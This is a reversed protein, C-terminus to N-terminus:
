YHVNNNYKSKSHERKRFYEAYAPNYPNADAKIKVHRVIPTSHVIAKAIRMQLRKVLAEVIDWEIHYWNSHAISAGANATIQKEM